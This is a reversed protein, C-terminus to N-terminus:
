DEKVVQVKALAEEPTRGQTIRAELDPVVGLYATDEDSWFILNPYDVAPSM